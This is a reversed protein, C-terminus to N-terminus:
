KKVEKEFMNWMESLALTQLTKCQSKDNYVVHIYKNILMLMPFLNKEDENIKKVIRRLLKKTARCLLQRNTTTTM